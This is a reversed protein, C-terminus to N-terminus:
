QRGGIVAHSLRAPVVARIGALVQYTAPGGGGSATVILHRLEPDGSALLTDAVIALDGATGTGPYWRQAPLWIALSRELTM